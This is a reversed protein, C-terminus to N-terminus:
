NMQEYFTSNQTFTEWVCLLFFIFFYILIFLYIFHKYSSKHIIFTNELNKHKDLNSHSKHVNNKKKM